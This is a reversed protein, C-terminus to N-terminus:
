MWNRAPDVNGYKTNYPSFPHFVVIIVVPTNCYSCFYPVFHASFSAPKYLLFISVQKLIECETSISAAGLSSTWVDKPKNKETFPVTLKLHKSDLDQLALLEPQLVWVLKGTEHQDLCCEAPHGLLFCQM